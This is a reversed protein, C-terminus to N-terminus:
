FIHAKFLPDSYNVMNQLNHVITSGDFILQECTIDLSDAAKNLKLKKLAQHVEELSVPIIVETTNLCINHIHSIDEMCKTKLKDDFNENELQTALSGLHTAWGDCM